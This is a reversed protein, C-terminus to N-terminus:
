YKFYVQQFGNSIQQGHRGYRLCLGLNVQGNFTQM